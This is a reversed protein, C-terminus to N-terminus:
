FITSESQKSCSSQRSIQHWLFKSIQVVHLCYHAAHREHIQVRRTSKNCLVNSDILFFYRDDIYEGRPCGVTDDSGTNNRSSMESQLSVRNGITTTTQISTDNNPPVIPMVYDPSTHVAQNNLPTLPISPQINVGCQELIYGLDHQLRAFDPRDKPLEQWCELM